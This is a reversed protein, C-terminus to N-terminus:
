KRLLKNLLKDVNVVVIGSALDSMAYPIILEGNNIMAGCSYVVNPVYGEREIENPGLLPEDLQGIIKSPDNLDLLYIGIVYKRMAGVGHSLLLWGAETEIPSGCNGMKTFEWPQRPQLIVQSKQWVHLDNSYMLLISEGDQRSIMAYKGNIKKPFLAMGKDQVANGHLTHTKFHVFDATEILKSKIQKGDYATYTGYYTQIDDDEFRVFRVDEIGNCEDPSVPFIVRESIPQKADFMIEATENASNKQKAIIPTSAYKSIPDISIEGSSDIVGSVFEISSIHGEGTARLSMVFRSNGEDLNDQDSHLVISPNFLAASEVSYEKTFYSGIVMKREESIQSLNPLIDAIRSFHAQLISEYDRHRRSFGSILRNFLIHIQEDSLSLVNQVIRQTHKQDKSNFFLYIVKKHTPQLLISKRKVLQNNEM